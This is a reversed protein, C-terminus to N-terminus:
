PGGEAGNPRYGAAVIVFNVHRAFSADRRPVKKLDFRPDGPVSRQPPM